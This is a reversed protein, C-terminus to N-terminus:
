AVTGDGQIGEEDDEEEEEVALPLLLLASDDVPSNLEDDTEDLLSADDVAEAEVVAEEV